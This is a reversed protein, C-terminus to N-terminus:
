FVGIMKSPQPKQKDCMSFFHSLAATPHGWKLDIRLCSIARCLTPWDWTTYGDFVDGTGDHTIARLADQNAGDAGALSILTRRADHQRRKRLGVRECDEGFKNLMHRLSRVKGRRSPVIWDDSRPTREFLV